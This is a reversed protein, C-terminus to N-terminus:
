RMRSTSATRSARTTSAPSWTWSTPVIQYTDPDSPDRRVYPIFRGTEPDLAGEPLGGPALHQRLQGRGARLRCLHRHAGPLGAAPGQRLAAHGRAPRVHRLVPGLAATKPVTIAEVNAADITAGLTDTRDVLAREGDRRLADYTLTVVLTGIVAYLVLLPLLGFLLIKQRLRLRAIRSGPPKPASTRQDAHTM